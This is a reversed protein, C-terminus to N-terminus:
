CIFCTRLAEDLSWLIKWQLSIARVAAAAQRIRAALEQFSEEPRCQRIVFRTPDSQVKKYAVVTNSGDMTLDRIESPPTEQAATNLLLKYM